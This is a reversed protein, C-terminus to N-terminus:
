GNDKHEEKKHEDLLKITDFEKLCTLCIIKSKEPSEKKKKKSKRIKTSKNELEFLKTELEIIKNELEINAEQSDITLKNESFSSNKLESLEDESDMLHNKIKMNENKLKKIEEFLGVSNRLINESIIHIKSSTSVSSINKINKQKSYLTKMAEEKNNALIGVTYQNNNQLVYSINYAFM